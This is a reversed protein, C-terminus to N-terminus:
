TKLPVGRLVGIQDGKELKAQLTKTKGKLKRVSPYEKVPMSGVMRDGVFTCGPFQKELSERAREAVSPPPWGDQDEDIIEGVATMKNGDPTVLKATFEYVAKV